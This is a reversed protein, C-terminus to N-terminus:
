QSLILSRKRLLLCRVGREVLVLGTISAVVIPDIATQLHNSHLQNRKKM